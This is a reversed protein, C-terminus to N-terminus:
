TGFFARIAGRKAPKTEGIAEFLYNALQVAQNRDLLIARERMERESSGNRHMTQLHLVVRQGLDDARWGVLAGTDLKDM